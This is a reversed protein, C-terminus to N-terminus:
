WLHFLSGFIRNFLEIFMISRYIDCRNGANVYQNMGFNLLTDDIILLAKIQNMKERFSTSAVKSVVHSFSNTLM